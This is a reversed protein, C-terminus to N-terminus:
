VLFTNVNNSQGVELTDCFIVLSRNFLLETSILLEMSVLMTKDKKGGM